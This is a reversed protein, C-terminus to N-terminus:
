QPMRTPPVPQTTIYGGHGRTGYGYNYGGAHYGHGGSDSGNGQRLGYASGHGNYGQTAYARGHYGYGYNYGYDSHYGYGHVGHNGYGGSSYSLGESAFPPRPAPSSQAKGHHPYSFALLAALLFFTRTM